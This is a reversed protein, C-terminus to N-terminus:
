QNQRRLSSLVSDIKTVLIRISKGESIISFPVTAKHVHVEAFLNSAKLQTELKVAVFPDLGERRWHGNLAELFATRDPDLGSGTITTELDELLLWGGPKVLQMTRRLVDEWNPLYIFVMRAHVIEFMEPELAFPKTLDHALFKLNSPLPTPRLPLPNLDVALVKADPFQEAAQIAWAGSGCGLELIATPASEKLPAFSLAGELYDMIGSHMDDLRQLERPTDNAAPLLYTPNSSTEPNSVAM